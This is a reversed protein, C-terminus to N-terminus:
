KTELVADQGRLVALSAWVEGLFILSESVPQSQRSMTKLQESPKYKLFIAKYPALRVTSNGSISLRGAAARAGRGWLM